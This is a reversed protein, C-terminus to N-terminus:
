VRRGDAFAIMVSRGIGDKPIEMDIIGTARGVLEMSREPWEVLVLADRRDILGLEDVERPDTIRYLDAHLIEMKGARYPQVLAFTPSPVELEPDGVLSRILARAFATKGAGLDGQLLILDGAYLHIAVRKALAETAADNRLFVPGLM